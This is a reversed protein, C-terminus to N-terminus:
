RYIRNQRAPSRILQPATFLPGSSTAAATFTRPPCTTFTRYQLAAALQGEAPDGLPNTFDDAVQCGPLNAPGTGTPIFGDAYDGFGKQNTGKFQISFYTTNCNDTAFFGYPKGCTTSGIQIVEVDIGRLGNIIAESASCTSGGTLVYVRTLGLQPLPQNPLTSAFGLTKDYFPTISDCFGPFPNKNNCATKEFTKGATQAPGAIMYALESAIALLGGGNYRIDLVLDTINGAKLTNIADILLQESTAIHDNFLMYGVSANPAPLTRTKQVPVSKVNDASLTVTRTITSGADRFTFTHQEGAVTPFLGLNLAVSDGTAFNVGDIAILEAGREVLANAGPTGPDTYAVVWRRNPAASNIRAFEIGYGLSVGSQSLAVWEPTPITFHFQDKLKGSPTTATTKLVDFFDKPTAFLPGQDYTGVENYWLYTENIWSRLFDKETNLSGQVDGYPSKTLPDITGAPRPSVCQQSLSSAAPFAGNTNGGFPTGLPITVPSVSATTFGSGTNGGGGGGGCATLVGILAGIFLANSVGKATVACKWTMFHEL